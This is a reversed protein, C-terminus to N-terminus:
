GPLCSRFCCPGSLNPPDMREESEPEAERSRLRQSLLCVGETFVSIVVLPLALFVLNLLSQSLTQPHALRYSGAMSLLTLVRANGQLVSFLKLNNHHSKTPTLRPNRSHLEKFPGEGFRAQPNTVHM